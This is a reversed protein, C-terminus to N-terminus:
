FFSDFIEELERNMGRADVSQYSDDNMFELEENATDVFEYAKMRMRLNFQEMEFGMLIGEIDAFQNCWNPNKVNFEDTYYIEMSPKSIDSFVGIAKKCLIGAITDTQSTKIVHLDPYSKIMEKVGYDDYNGVVKKSFVKIYQNVEMKQENSHVVAKFGISSIESQNENQTFTYVMEDPLLNAVQMQDEDLYPFSLDYKIIGESVGDKFFTSKIDSCSICFLLLMFLFYKSINCM